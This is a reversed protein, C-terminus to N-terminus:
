EPSKQKGLRLWVIVEDSLGAALSFVPKRAVLGPAIKWARADPRDGSPTFIADARDLYRLASPKFDMVSDDLVAFYLDPRLLRLVSNSELLTNSSDVMRKRVAPMAEALQGQRTRGWFVRKAGAALM